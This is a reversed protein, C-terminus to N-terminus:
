LHGLFEDANLDASRRQLQRQHFVALDLFHGYLGQGVMHDGVAVDGGGAGHALKDFHGHLAVLDAALFAGQDDGRLHHNGLLDGQGGHVFGFQLQVQGELELVIHAPVGVGVLVIVDDGIDVVTDHIEVGGGDALLIHLLEVLDHALGAQGQLQSHGGFHGPEVDDHLGFLGGLLQADDVDAM